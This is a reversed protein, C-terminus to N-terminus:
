LANSGSGLSPGRDPRRSLHPRKVAPAEGRGRELEALPGGAAEVGADEVEAPEQGNEEGTAGGGVAVPHQRLGREVRHPCRLVRRRAVGAADPDAEPDTSQIAVAGDSVVARDVAEGRRKERQGSSESPTTTTAERSTIFATVSSM